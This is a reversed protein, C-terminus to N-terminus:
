PSSSPRAAMLHQDLFDLIREYVERRTKEDYVSPGEREIEVWELQKNHKELAAKMREAQEFDARWDEKGHVLMVPTKIREANRVPSRAQLDARDNGLVKHVYTMDIRPYFYESNSLLKLDYIGAYGIACRYLDPERAAGMLAAYAGYGAGFICIRDARTVDQEIAWRTADTLDDQMKAGWQRYGAAEFDMGFGASGRYNVQLVAYGRSALLQVEWNFGWTDRAGHPGDHPLVVLPHPGNATPKTLYGRLQLGDRATLEVPQMPRMLKADIWKRTARLFHAKMTKTEFLYYTGPHIDSRVFVIARSGDDSTSTVEVHQDPFARQLAQHLKAARDDPRLWHYSPRDADASVGVIERDAFDTILTSVDADEFAHVKEVARTQLDLRYLAALTEGERVGTLLVSRNDTSFRQPVLGEERFGPLSFEQWEGRAEPKWVVALKFEKNLGLGFRVQDDHDVLVTANRLPAVGLSEQHGSFVDLRLVTPNGNPDASVWRWGSSRWPLMSILVHEADGKLTNVLRFRGRTSELKIAKGIAPQPDWHWGYIQHHRSGDRNIAFLQNTRRPANVGSWRRGFSYVLRTDSVWHFDSIEQWQYARVGTLPSKGSLDIFAIASGEPGGTTMAVYQGDPSIKITGFEDSRTFHEIPLPDALAAVSCVVAPALLLISGMIRM